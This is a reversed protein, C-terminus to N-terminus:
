KLQGLYLFYMALSIWGVCIGLKAYRVDQHYQTRRLVFFSWFILIVGALVAITRLVSLWDRLLNYQMNLYAYDRYATGYFFIGVIFAIVVLDCSLVIRFALRSWVGFSKQSTHM